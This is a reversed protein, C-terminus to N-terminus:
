KISSPTLSSIHTRIPYRPAVRPSHITPNHNLTPPPSRPSLHPLHTTSLPPRTTHPLPATLGCLTPTHIYSSEPHSPFPPSRLSSVDTSTLTSRASFVPSPSYAPYNAFDRRPVTLASPPHRNLQRLLRMPQPAPSARASAPYSNVPHSSILGTLYADQLNKNAIENFDNLIKSKVCDTFEALCRKQCQCNSFKRAPVVKGTKTVYQKGANLNNKRVNVTWNNEDRKRKKAPSPTAPVFDSNNDSDDSDM